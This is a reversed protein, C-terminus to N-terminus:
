SAEMRWLALLQNFVAELTYHKQLRQKAAEGLMLRLGEDQILDNLGTQLAEADRPPVIRGCGDDLMEPIAGVSTALIPRGLAMAEVVVNPFGETYSPLVFIDAQSMLAMGAAHDLHGTFTVRNLPYRLALEEMFTPECPGAIVLRWDQLDLKGWAYLLEHIGKAPIVWGLFLVTNKAPILAQPDPLVNSDVCNPILQIDLQPLHSRLAAETRQDIPIITTALQLAKVLHRWESTDNNAIDPIRGFRLHYCIPIKLSKAVWMMAIDRFIAFEGSTTIHLVTCGKTLSLFVKWILHIARLSGYVLRNWYRFDLDSKWRPNNDVLRIDVLKTKKAHGTILETWRGIGGYPPPLPAVLCVKPPSQSTAM